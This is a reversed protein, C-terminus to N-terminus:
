SRAFEILAAFDGGDAQRLAKIYNRRHEDGNSFSRGWTFHSFQLAHSALIDAMLRSHRGNGNPFPHISVLGHKFRVAIEEAPYISHELWHVCDDLFQRLRVGIQFKDVGINKDSTRFQGAWAWVDEFMKYHVRRVFAESLITDLPFQKRLSWDIAREINLHEFQDLESQLHVTPILLGDLESSDIRTQGGQYSFDLGM